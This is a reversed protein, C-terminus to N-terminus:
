ILADTLLQYLNDIEQNSLVDKPEVESLYIGTRTISVVNKINLHSVNNSAFVILSYIPISRPLLKSLKKIHIENQILPNKYQYEKHNKIRTWIEDDISGIVRGEWNKVEIVFLGSSNIYIVDIQTNSGDIPKFIFNPIIKHYISNKNSWHKLVSITDQEGVSGRSKITDGDLYSALARIIM